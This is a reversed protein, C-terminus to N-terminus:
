LSGTLSLFLLLMWVPEKAVREDVGQYYIYTGRGLVEGAMIRGGVVMMWVSM